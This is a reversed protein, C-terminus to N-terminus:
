LGGRGAGTSAEGALITLLPVQDAGLIPEVTADRM